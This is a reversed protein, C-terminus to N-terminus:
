PWALGVIKAASEIEGLAKELKGGQDAAKDIADKLAGRSNHTTDAAQGARTALSDVAGDADHVAAGLDTVVRQHVGDTMETLRHARGERVTTAANEVDGAHIRLAMGIQDLANTLETRAKATAETLATGFADLDGTVEGTSTHVQTQLGDMAQMVEAAAAELEGQATHAAATLEGAATSLEAALDHADQGAQVLTAQLHNMSDGVATMKQTLEALEREIVEQHHDVVVDLSGMADHISTEVQEAHAKLNALEQRAQEVRAGATATRQEWEHLFENYETRLAQGMELTDTVDPPLRPAEAQLDSLLEGLDPM